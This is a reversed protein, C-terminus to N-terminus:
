LRSTSWNQKQVLMIQLPLHNAQDAVEFLSLNHEQAAVVLKNMTTQGIGSRPLQNGDCAKKM